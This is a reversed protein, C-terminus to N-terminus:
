PKRKIRSQETALIAGMPTRKRPIRAPVDVPPAQPITRGSRTPVKDGFKPAAQEAKKKAKVSVALAKLSTKIDTAPETPQVPAIVPEGQIPQQGIGRDTWGSNTMVQQGGAPYDHGFVPMRGLLGSRVPYQGRGQGYPNLPPMPQRLMQHSGHFTLSHPHRNYHEPYGSNSEEIPKLKLKSKEPMWFTLVGGAAGAAENFTNELAKENLHDLLRAAEPSYGHTLVVAGCWDHGLLNVDFLRYAGMGVPYIAEEDLKENLIFSFFPNMSITVTSLVKKKEATMRPPTSTVFNPTFCAAAMYLEHLADGIAAIPNQVTSSSFRPSMMSSELAPFSFGMRRARENFHELIQSAFAHITQHLDVAIVRALDFSITYCANILIGTKMDTRNVVVYALEELANAEVTDFLRARMGKHSIVNDARTAVPKITTFHM